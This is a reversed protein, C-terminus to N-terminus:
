LCVNSQTTHTHFKTGWELPLIHISFQTKLFINQGLVLSTVPSNLFNRLKKLKM